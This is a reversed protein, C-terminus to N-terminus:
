QQRWSVMNALLRYAGPVGAPLERFLSLGTYIFCGKGYTAVLLSGPKADENPDNMQLLPTYHEDWENPFYLGREQVWNTFDAESIKNPTNLIKHEPALFTIPANEVTVRDRSIKLPYPGIKESLLAYTTNYQVLMTGGNFVYDLLVPMLFEIRERTNFIRVGLVVADYQKLNAATVQEDQLVDVQYGIQQLAAPIEDGAGKLYAVREGVKEIDLKIMKASANPMYMQTPIHAYSITKNSLVYDKGNITAIATAQAEASETPPILQFAINQEADKKTLSFTIETPETKWNKPLDIHLTGAVNDKNAKLLVNLTQPKENAFVCVEQDLNVFVPPVIAFPRYREGDAEDNWKYVVPKEIVFDKENIKLHWRINVAPLNEPLGRLMQEDVRFMGLSSPQQLWYPQSFDMNTPIQWSDSFNQRKNKELSFNAVSASHENISMKELKVKIPSRNVAEFNIRISDNTCATPADAVAEVYLGLCYYILNDLQTTKEKKWFENQLASILERAAFLDDVIEWPTDPTFETQIKQIIQQIAQTNELRNWSIDIDDLLDTTAKKGKQALFYEIEEGRTGTTGFAQCKHMSRSEAAIENYSKGLLANYLGVDIPLMESFESSAKLKDLGGYAWTSTNYILRKAQWTSVYQLQEPFMAPNAAADFAEAALIASATHHGHTIGPTTSFRTIIVDPKFQRIVWVMDALVEQKDWITFTEDPTKSYGFDNARSFYQQGGDMRRAALLEQTRLIGLADRIESGILNQGGDGRTLSLYATNVCKENALYAILRTNEDDPHAAVYLVRGLTNLKKLMLQIEAASPKKPTQAKLLVTNVSLFLLIFGLFYNIAPRM